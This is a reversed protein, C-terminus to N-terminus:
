DMTPPIQPLLAINRSVAAEYEVYARSNEPGGAALMAEYALAHAAHVASLQRMYQESQLSVAAMKQAGSADQPMDQCMVAIQAHEDALTSTIAVQKRLNELYAEHKDM